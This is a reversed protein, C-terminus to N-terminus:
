SRGANWAKAPECGSGDKPANRAGLRVSSRQRRSRRRHSRLPWWRQSSRRRLCVPRQRGQSGLESAASPVPKQAGRRPRSLRRDAPRDRDAPTVSGHARARVLRRSPRTPGLASRSSPPVYPSRSVLFVAKRQSENVEASGRSPGSCIAAIGGTMRFRVRYAPFILGSGM